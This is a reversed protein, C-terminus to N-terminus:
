LCKLLLTIEELDFQGDSDSFFIYDNEAASFGSRLAAGYGKNRKHKVVVAGLGKAIESTSDHSGDDCVFIHKKYVNKM